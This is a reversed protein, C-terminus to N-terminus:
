RREHVALLEDFRKLQLRALISDLAAVSEETAAEIAYTLLADATLLDNAATREAGARAASALLELGADALVEAATLGTSQTREVARVLRRELDFPPPPQRRGLWDLALSRADTM